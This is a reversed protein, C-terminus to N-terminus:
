GPCRCCQFSRLRCSQRSPQRCRTRPAQQPRPPATGTLPTFILTPANSRALTAHIFAVSSHPSANPQHMQENRTVARGAHNRSRIANNEKSSMHGPEARPPDIAPREDKRGAKITGRKQERTRMKLLNTVQLPPPSHAQQHLRFPRFLIQYREQLHNKDLTTTHGQAPCQHSQHPMPQM